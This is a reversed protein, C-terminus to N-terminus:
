DTPPGESAPPLSLLAVDLALRPNVNQDLDARAQVLTALAAQLTAPEYRAAQQELEGLRDAHRVRETLGLRILLLDRWWSAWLDLEARVQESKGSWGEALARSIELRGLPRHALTRGLRDLGAQRAALYGPDTAAAIAWGPRGDALSALLRAQEASQGLCAELHRAIREAPVPRLRLRACRSVTTPLLSEAEEATLVLLAHPPPEELTKLLCNEAEPSLREADVILALRRRGETPRRALESQLQQIEQIGIRQRGERLEIL